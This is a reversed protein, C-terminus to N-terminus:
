RSEVSSYNLSAKTWPIQCYSRTRSTCTVLLLLSSNMHVIPLNTNGGDSGQALAFQSTLTFKM